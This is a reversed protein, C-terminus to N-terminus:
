REGAFRRLPKALALLLLGCGVTILVIQTYRWPWTELAETDFSGAVLGAVASGLATCLFWMGMMQGGFRHPALKTMASLGVPSLALEGMTHFLYTFVLWTPWVQQGAAVLTAAGIMVAFGLGLLLLGFAFKAPASPELHRRALWLWFMSYFPALVILFLPNLSQFWTTPIVFAGIERVTYREAFLNLTSGFQEYGAWFVASALVLVLIVVVRRRELPTLRGALFVYGFYALTGVALAATTGRALAVADLEVFGNVGAVLLVLAAVVVAAVVSWSRARFTPTPAVAPVLGAAGLYRQMRRFQVLGFFMGVGAAAFGYRWDYTALLGCVLPGLVAGLNIGMYFVTFGSDRRPDNAAYLEGVIASVNPKLLGTGLVVLLLGGFFATTGPVALVFHGCMIIIGGVFIARRAGWLRDAIWGGPLAVLYVFATYLGYIATATQDSLAFGGTALEDTMFLVLLAQMGYFSFREWMETFFLTALGRPHGFIETRDVAIAQSV